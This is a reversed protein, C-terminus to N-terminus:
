NCFIAVHSACSFIHLTPRGVTPHDLHLQQDYLQGYCHDSHSLWDNNNHYWTMYNTTTWWKKLAVRRPYWFTLYMKQFWGKCTFNTASRGGPTTKTPFTKLIGEFQLSVLGGEFVGHFIYNAKRYTWRRLVTTLSYESRHFSPIGFYIPNKTCIPALVPYCVHLVGIM